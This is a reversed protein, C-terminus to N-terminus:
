LQIELVTYRISKGVPDHDCLLFYIHRPTEFALSHPDFVCSSCLRRLFTLMLFPSLYSPTAQHHKITLCRHRKCVGGSCIRSGFM